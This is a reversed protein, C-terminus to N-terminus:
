PESGRLFVKCLEEVALSATEAELWLHPQIAEVEILIFKDDEMVGDIRAYVLKGMDSHTCEDRVNM